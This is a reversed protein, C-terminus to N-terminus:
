LKKDFAEIFIDILPDIDDLFNRVDDDLDGITLNAFKKNLDVTIVVNLSVDEEFALSIWLSPYHQHEKSCHLCNPDGIKSIFFDSRMEDEREDLYGNMLKLALSKRNEVEEQLMEIAKRLGVYSERAIISECTKM